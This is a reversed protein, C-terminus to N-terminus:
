NTKFTYLVHKELCLLAEAVFLWNISLPHNIVYNNTNKLKIINNKIKDLYGKVLNKDKREKEKWEIISISSFTDFAVWVHRTKLDLDLFYIWLTKKPALVMIVDYNIQHIMKGYKVAKFSNYLFQFLKKVNYILSHSFYCRYRYEIQCWELSSALLNNLASKPSVRPM